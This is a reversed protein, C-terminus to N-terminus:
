AAERELQVSLLLCDARATVKGSLCHFELSFMFDIRETKPRRCGFWSRKQRAGVVVSMSIMPRRSIGISQNSFSYSNSLM